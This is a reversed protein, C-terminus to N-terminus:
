QFWKVGCFGVAGAQSKRDDFADDIGMVANKLENGFFPFAGGNLNGKRDVM